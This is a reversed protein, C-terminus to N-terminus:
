LKQLIKMKRSLPLWEDFKKRLKQSATEQFVFEHIPLVEIDNDKAYQRLRPLQIDDISLGTRQQEPTSVRALIIGKKM